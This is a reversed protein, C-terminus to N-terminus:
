RKNAIAPETYLVTTATVRDGSWSGWVRLLSGEGIEDLSGAVVTQQVTSGPQANDPPRTTDKYIKTSQNIVVEVQVPAADKPSSSIFISRDVRRLFPGVFTDPERPLEPAPNVQFQLGMPKGGTGGATGPLVGGIPVPAARHTAWQGGLYAAGALLAALVLGGAVLAIRKM